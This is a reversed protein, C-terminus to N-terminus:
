KAWEYRQKLHNMQSFSLVKRYQLQGVVIGPDVGQRAAFEVVEDEDYSFRTIFRTLAQAPVLFESAWDDAAAELEAAVNSLGKGDLFISKRSHLLLHACEHFFTFWFHDNSLHRATQQILARRPSLWRSVGSLAVKSLSRELVFVVGASACLRKVKPLFVEISETTLGRIEKLAALFATRDYDAAEIPEARLDGIRLWALLSAETSEFSPSHRYAVASLENFREQCAEVSGCGFFRLLERVQAAPQKELSLLGRKSLEALPFQKAWKIHKALGAEEKSRALFLRYNAEMGLWIAASTELVRELQLATEPEIPAKGSIIEAILKPSRGCRRALERASIDLGSLQEEILSGPPAAYNPQYGYRVDSM